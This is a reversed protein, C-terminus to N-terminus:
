GYKELLKKWAAIDREWCRIKNRMEPPFIKEATGDRKGNRPWCIRYAEILARRADVAEWVVQKLRKREKLNWVAM